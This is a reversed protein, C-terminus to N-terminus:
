SKRRKRRKKKKKGGLIDDVDPIEPMAVKPLKFSPVEFDVRFEYVGRRRGRKKRGKPKPELEKILQKTTQSQRTIQTLIPVTVLDMRQEQELVQALMPTLIPTLKMDVRPIPITKLKFEPVQIQKFAELQKIGQPQAQRLVQGLVTSEELRQKLTTAAKPLPILLLKDIDVTEVKAEPPYSVVVFPYVDVGGAQAAREAMQILQAAPTSKAAAATAKPEKFTSRMFAEVNAARMEAAERAKIQLLGSIDRTSFESPLKVGGRLYTPRGSFGYEYAKIGPLMMFKFAARAGGLVSESAVPIRWAVRGTVDVAYPRVGPTLLFKAGGRVLALDVLKLTQGLKPIVYRDAKFILNGALDSTYYPKLISPLTQLAQKLPYTTRPGFQAIGAGTETPIARRLVISAKKGTLAAESLLARVPATIPRLSRTLALDAQRIAAAAKAGTLEMWQTAPYGGEPGFRALGKQGIPEGPLRGLLKVTKGLLYPTAATAVIRETFLFPDELLSKIVQSRYGEDVVVLGPTALALGAAKPRVLLSIAEAMTVPIDVAVGSLYSGLGLLPSGEDAYKLSQARLQVGPERLGEFFVQMGAEWEELPENIMREMQEGLSGPKAQGFPLGQSPMGAERRRIADTREAESPAPPGELSGGYGAAWAEAEEKSLFTRTQERGEPDTFTVTYTTLGEELPEPDHSVVAEIIQKRYERVKRNYEVVERNYTSVDEGRYFYGEPAELILSKQEIGQRKLIEEAAQQAEQGSIAGSQYKEHLEQLQKVEPHHAQSVKKIAERQEPTLSSSPKNTPPEEEEEEKSAVKKLAERQEPTLNGVLVSM